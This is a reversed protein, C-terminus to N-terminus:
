DCCGSSQLLRLYVDAEIDNYLKSRSSFNCLHDGIAIGAELTETKKLEEAKAEFKEKEV